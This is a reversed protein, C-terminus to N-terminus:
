LLRFEFRHALILTPDFTRPFLTFLRSPVWVTAAAQQLISLQDPSLGAAAQQMENAFNQNLYQVSLVILTKDEMTLKSNVSLDAAFVVLLPSLNAIIAPTNVQVLKSICEYITKNEQFDKKLPLNSVLVPLIQDLPVSDPSTLIMRAVAAMANDVVRPEQEPTLLASVNQLIAPYHAIVDPVAHSAYMGIGFVSNSRVEDDPDTTYNLFITLIDPFQISFTNLSEVCEALVGVMASRESVTANPHFKAFIYPSFQRFHEVFAEAGLAKGLAPIVNAASEIVTVDVEALELVEIDLEDDDDDTEQCIAKKWWLISKKTDKYQPNDWSTDHSNNNYKVCTTTYIESCDNNLDM